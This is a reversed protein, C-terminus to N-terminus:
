VSMNEGGAGVDEDDLEGYIAGIDDNMFLVYTLINYAIWM